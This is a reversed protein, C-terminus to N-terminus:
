RSLQLLIVGGIFLACVIGACIMAVHHHGQGSQQAAAQAAETATTEADFTFLRGQGQAQSRSTLQPSEKLQVDQHVPELNVRPANAQVRDKETVAPSDEFEMGKM